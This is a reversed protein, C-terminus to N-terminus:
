GHGFSSRLTKRGLRQPPIKNRRPNLRRHLVLHKIAISHKSHTAHKTYLLVLFNPRRLTRFKQRRIAKVRVSRPSNEGSAGSRHAARRRRPRCSQNTPRHAPHAHPRTVADGSLGSSNRVAAAIAADDPAPRPAQNGQARSFPVPFPAVPFPALSVHCRQHAIGNHAFHYHEAM